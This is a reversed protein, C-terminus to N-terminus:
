YNRAILRVYTLATYWGLLSALALGRWGDRYGGLEIFRRRFERLPQLVLAWPRPKLGARALQRAELRAYQRQKQIFQGLGDYNYHILPERLYDAAGDLRVLEHVERSEDYTARGVRLLRLQYDPSWGGHRIWGGWIINRRPIWYGVPSRPATEGTRLTAEAALSHTAREDPDLFIVWEGLDRTKVQELVANRQIPFSEFTRVCVVAGHTQAVERSQRSARADLMVLQSDTWALSDLCLGLHKSEDRALVAGVIRNVASRRGDRSRV